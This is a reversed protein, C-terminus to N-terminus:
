FTHRTVTAGAAVAMRAQVTAAFAAPDRAEELTPTCVPLWTFEVSNFPTCLMRLAIVHMPPGAAVCCPDVAGRHHYRVVVPQVPVGANFAGNKFSIVASGNSCTGEPFLLVQPFDPNAARRRIAEVTRRRSAPDSRDVFVSQAARFLPGLFPIWADEARQVPSALTAMALYFAEFISVHNSVIIPAEQKGAPRGNVRIWFFGFCHLIVRLLRLMPRRFLFQRWRPIPTDVGADPPLGLLCFFALARMAVVCWVFVYIRFIALPVGICLM